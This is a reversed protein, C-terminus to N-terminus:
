QASFSALMAEFSHRDGHDQTLRVRGEVDALHEDMLTLARDLDKNRLAGLIARHHDTGCDDHHDHEYLVMVLSLRAVVKELLETLVKNGSIRALEIHFEGSLEAKAKEDTGRHIADEREIIADLRDYDSVTGREAAMGLILRELGRRAEFLEMAEEVSPEAVFAGRNRKRELLHDHELIGLAGRVVTRSVKFHDAIADELIKSGPKLAGESIAAALTACIRNSVDETAETSEAQAAPTPAAAKGRRKMSNRM